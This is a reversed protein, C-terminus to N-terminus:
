PQWDLPIKATYGTEQPARLRDICDQLADNEATLDANAARLKAVEEELGMIRTRRRSFYEWIGAIVCLVCFATCLISVIFWVVSAIEMLFVWV